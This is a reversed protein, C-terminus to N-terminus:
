WLGPFLRYSVRQAYERYGPLEEMLTHDELVTRVFSIVLAFGAAVFTWLTDLALPIGAVSLVAGAYGPHRVLRYPGSDCVQHGRETQIRVTSTFFRNEVLAWASLAFGSACLFLGVVNVWTPFPPTWAYRHDLAGVIVLPYLISFGMLPALVRDWSKVQQGRGFRMRDAQLGPHRHEAWVRGGVGAVHVFLAFTWAQWWSSDRGVVLLVLPVVLYAVVVALWVAASVEVPPATSPNGM